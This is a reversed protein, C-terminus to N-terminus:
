PQALHPRSSRRCNMRSCSGPSPHALSSATRLPKPQKWTASSCCRPVYLTEGNTDFGAGGSEDAPFMDTIPLELGLLDRITNRYERRNLRRPASPGAYDAGTCASQRLRTEIWQVISVREAEALKHNGPPMTRNRMQTAVNRWLNRRTEVDQADQATLFNLRNRPNAPNHCPACNSTLVPKIHTAFDQASAVLISAACVLAFKM